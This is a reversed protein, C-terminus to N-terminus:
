HEEANRYCSSDEVVVLGLGLTKGEQGGEGGWPM